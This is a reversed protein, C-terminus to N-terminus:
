PQLVLPAEGWGSSAHRHDGTPPPGRAPRPSVTIPFGSGTYSGDIRNTPRVPRGFPRLGHHRYRSRDAIDQAIMHPKLDVTDGPHVQIHIDRLQLERASQDAIDMSM